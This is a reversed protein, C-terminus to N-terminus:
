DHPAIKHLIAAAVADADHFVDNNWFRLIEFGQESLWQDRIADSTNAAHQSGDIEVILRHSYCVFDVIYNGIQEQRKFKAGGLRGARVISWVRKEAETPERRM